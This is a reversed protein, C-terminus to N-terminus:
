GAATGDTRDDWVGIRVHRPSTIEVRRPSLTGSVFSRQPLVLDACEARELSLQPLNGTPQVTAPWWQLSEAGHLFTPTSVWENESGVSEFWTPQLCLSAAPVSAGFMLLKHKLEENEARLSSIEEFDIDVRKRLEANELRLRLTEEPFGSDVEVNEDALRCTNAKTAIGTVVSGSGLNCTLQLRRASAAAVTAASARHAALTVESLSAAQPNSMMLGPPVLSVSQMPCCLVMDNHMTSCCFSIPHQLAVDVASFAVNSSAIAQRRSRWKLLEALFHKMKKVSVYSGHENFYGVSREEFTPDWHRRLLPKLQSLLLGVVEGGALGLSSPLLAASETQKEDRPMELARTYEASGYKRVIEGLRLVLLPWCALQCDRGPMLAATDRLHLCADGGGCMDIEVLDVLQGQVAPLTPPPGVKSIPFRDGYVKCLVSWYVGDLAACPFRLLLDRLRQGQVEIGGCDPM